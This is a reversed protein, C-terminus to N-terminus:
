SQSEVPVYDPQRVRPQPLSLIARLQPQVQMAQPTRAQNQSYQVHTSVNLQLHLWDAWHRPLMLRRPHTPCTPDTLAVALSEKAAQKSAARVRDPVNNSHQLGTNTPCHLLIQRGKAATEPSPTECFQLSSVRSEVSPTSDVEYDCEKEPAGLSESGRGPAISLGMYLLGIALMM